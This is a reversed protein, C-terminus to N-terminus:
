SFIQVMPNMNDGKMEGNANPKITARVFHAKMGLLRESSSELKDRALQLHVYPIPDM